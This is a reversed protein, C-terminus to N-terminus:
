PVAVAFWSDGAPALVTVAVTDDLTTPVLATPAAVDMTNEFEFWSRTGWHVRYGTAGPHATASWSVAVSDGAQTKVVSVVPLPSASVSEADLFPLYVAKGLEFDDYYDHIAGKISAADTLSWFNGTASIESTTTVKLVTTGSHRFSNETFAMATSVSLLPDASADAITNGVVTLDGSLSVTKTNRIIQNDGVHSAANGSVSFGGGSDAIINDVILHKVNGTNAGFASQACGEILNDSVKLPYEPLPDLASGVEPGNTGAAYFGGLNIGYTMAHIWNNSITVSHVYPGYGGGGFNIAGGGDTIENSDILLGAYHRQNMNLEIAQGNSTFTNGTIATDTIPQVPDSSGSSSYASYIGSSNDEFTNGILQLKWTARIEVARNNNRLTSSTVLLGTKFVYIATDACEVVVHKLQTGAATDRIQLGGWAGKGCPKAQASFVIPKDATGEATLTGEVKVYAGPASDLITGPCLTLSSGEPVLVPSQALYEGCWSANGEIVGGVLTYDSCVGGLCVKGGECPNPDCLDMTCTAGDASLHWGGAADCACGGDVCVEHNDASCADPDPGHQCGGAADCTDATCADGDDCDIASGGTCAGGQCTDAETCADGDDCDPGSAAVFTCGDAIDCGDTTCPDGDDCLFGAGGVCSGLLCADGITCADGDTCAADNPAHLCGQAPDCSDTTCGNLDDCDQAGIPVCAGGQCADGTTCANGDSCAGDDDATIQCGTAPDCSEQTCPNADTCELPNAGVCAGGQCTDTQTCVSGDDCGAVNPIFVCETPDQEPSCFNDTCHNGDDCLGDSPTSTCGLEPICADVTCGLLDDCELAAGGQCEGDSCQDGVTCANADDCAAAVDVPAGCGTESDCSASTCPNDDNCQILPGATCQGDACVDPGTCLDGDSCEGAQDVYVCGQESDCTGAQCAMATCVVDIGDGCAGATCSEGVTCADGDDCILGDNASEFICAGEVCADTTCPDDDECEIATGQCVGAVCLDNATCLDGDSCSGEIIVNSCGDAGGCADETCPNGDDCTAEDVAGDCNNDVGDCLEAAPEAADCASLGDDTCARQGQCVGHENTRSCDTVLALAIAKKSCPCAGGDFVCQRVAVGDVTETDACVFGSPCDTSEECVAGCFSGDEEYAVCVDEAGAPGGCDLVDQCPRCLNSATSVCIWTVDNGVASVQKCGFGHPCDDICPQTCISDGLHDICWGAWCDDHSTCPDLFCGAGAPCASPTVSDPETTQTDPEEGGLDASAVEPTPVATVTDPATQGAPAAGDPELECSNVLACAFFVLVWRM